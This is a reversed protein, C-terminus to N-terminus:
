TIERFDTNQKNVNDANIFDDDLYFCSVLPSSHNEIYVCDAIIIVVM